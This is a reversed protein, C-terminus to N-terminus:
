EIILQTKKNYSMNAYNTPQGTVLTRTSSTIVHISMTWPMNKNCYIIKIIFKTLVTTKVIVTSQIYLLTFIM